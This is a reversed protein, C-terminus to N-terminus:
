SSPPIGHTIPAFHFDTRVRMHRQFRLLMVVGFVFMVTPFLLLWGLNSLSRQAPDSQFYVVVKTVLSFAMFLVDLIALPVVVFAFEHKSFVFPRLHNMSYESQPTATHKTM